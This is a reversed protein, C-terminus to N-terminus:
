KRSLEFIARGQASLKNRFHSITRRDYLPIPRDINGLWCSFHAWTRTQPCIVFSMSDSYAAMSLRNTQHRECLTWSRVSTTWTTPKQRWEVKEKFSPHQLAGYSLGCTKKTKEKKPPHLWGLGVTSPFFIQRFWRGWKFLITFDFRGILTALTRFAPITPSHLKQTRAVSVVNIPRNWKIIVIYTSM